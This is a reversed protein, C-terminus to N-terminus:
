VRVRVGGTGREKAGSRAGGMMGLAETATWRRLRPLWGRRAEGVQGAAGGDDAEEDGDVFALRPAGCAASRAARRGGRSRRDGEVGAVGAAAVLRGPAKRLRGTLRAERGETKGSNGRGYTDNGVHGLEGGGLEDGAVNRHGFAWALKDMMSVQVRLRRLHEAGSTNSATADNALEGHRPDGGDMDGAVVGAM